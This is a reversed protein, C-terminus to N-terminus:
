GFAIASWKQMTKLGWDVHGEAWAAGRQPAFRAQLGALWLTRLGVFVPVADLDAQKLERRSRYGRLFAEWPELSKAHLSVAWRYVALDYARWGPGGCDFDFFTLEHDETQHVNHGHLDGHCLGCELAGEVRLLRARLDDAMRVYDAWMGLREAYPRLCRLPEEVLHERDLHFRPRDTVFRDM